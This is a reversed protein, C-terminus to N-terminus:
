VEDLQTDIQKKVGLPNSVSRLVVNSVGTGTVVVNGYGFIRGLVGQHVEVTEVKNLKMEDSSRSIVGTKTIVRKNTLGYETFKLQLIQFLPLILWFFLVPGVYFITHINFKSVITEDKILTKEIYGM